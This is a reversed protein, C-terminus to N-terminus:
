NDDFAIGLGEDDDESDSQGKKRAQREERKKVPDNLVSRGCTAVM